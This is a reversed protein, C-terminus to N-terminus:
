SGSDEVTESQAQNAVLLRWTVAGLSVMVLLHPWAQVGIWGEASGWPLIAYGAAAVIVPLSLLWPILDSASRRELAVCGAAGLISALLGWWGSMLGIATIALAGDLWLRVPVPGITAAESGPKTRSQVLISIVLLGFATAGGLLGLRYPRDPEFHATVRSGDRLEWAQQWGDAILPNLQRGQQQAAWGPNTNARHVVLGSSDTPSMWLGQASETSGGRLNQAPEMSYGPQILGLGTTSVMESSSASIETTGSSLGVGSGDCISLRVSQGSFLEAPSSSIATSRRASGIQLTPGSGCVEPVPDTSLPSSLGALGAIELDSIGIGLNRRALDFDLGFSKDQSALRMVLQTTRIPPFSASGHDLKVTRTGGAWSLEVSTPLRAAAAESLRIKLGSIKTKRLWSVVLTPRPDTPDAIWTTGMDGDIAALASGAPDPVMSSDSMANFFRGHQILQNLAPGPRIQGSVQIQYDAAEPLSVRRKFGRDEEGSSAAEHICRTSGEVSSCRAVHDVSGSFLIAEPAGWVDPVKPPVLVRSISVGPIEVEALSMSLGDDNKGLIRIWSTPDSNLLITTPVGPPLKLRATIEGETQVRVIQTRPSSAPATVTIKDLRQPKHFAVRLWPNPDLVGSEWSTEPDGDFAAGANRGLNLGDDALSTSTSLGKVGQYEAWTRWSDAGEPLYDRQDAFRKLEDRGLVMSYANNLNGIQRARAQLGDTLIVPGPPKTRTDANFGLITPQDELLGFDALGLLNEPGGIVVPTSRSQVFRAGGDAVEFIELAPYVFQWGQNIVVRQKGKILFPLGGIEPGFSKVRSIEPSDALAQHTLVPDVLGRAKLLDNRVLIYKIGARRLYDAMGVSGRGQAFREQITNLMRITGAPALPISNRVAWDGSALFQLPEDRPVGWLYTAFSSGPALLTTSDGAEANLWSAAETWYPPIEQIDGVPTIRMSLAPTATGVSAIIILGPIAYSVGTKWWSSLKGREGDAVMSDHAVQLAQDLVWALSLVMPLRVIPDFKHVNRLASLSGDLLGRLDGAFWGHITGLHSSSVLVLGVFLSAVLFRREPIRPLLLGMIGFLLVVGSNMPAYSTTILENSGRALSDIYPVWNSTGRLADFLPTSLTTVRASEIYDLFPPSYRGLLFLPVLWWMTALLTFLPWWTMMSRRRQGKERTLLWLVGMPLVAASAAANVGGILGIALASLAAAQRPSGGRSGHILPLLVWPALAMPWVEVSISGLDTLMRPSLAYAFGALLVAADRRVGLARAVFAAGLFAVVLVLALWSRQIVWGPLGLEHGLLFFPGMPWLYGYAQNQVQGFASTPDWLHLASGLFKLPNAVLDFKTDAVLKGPSQVFALAILSASAV